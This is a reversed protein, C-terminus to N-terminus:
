EIIEYESALNVGTLGCAGLYPVLKGKVKVLMGLSEGQTSLLGLNLRAASGSDELKVYLMRIVDTEGSLDAIAINTDAADEWNTVLEKSYSNIYGVIYGQVWAVTSDQITRAIEVSYPYEQTGDGETEDPDEGIVIDWSESKPNTQTSVTIRIIGTGPQTLEGSADFSLLWADGPSTAESTELNRTKVIGNDTYVLEIDLKHGAEYYATGTNQENFVIGSVTASYNTFAQVFADKFEVDVSAVAQSAEVEAYTTEDAVIGITTEGKYYLGKAADRGPLEIDDYILSSVEIRYTGVELELAEPLDILQRPYPNLLQDNRYLYIWYDDVSTSLSASKLSPTLKVVEMNVTTQLKLTGTEPLAGEKNNCAALISAYVLLVFYKFYFTKM